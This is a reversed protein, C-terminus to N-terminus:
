CAECLFTATYINQPLISLPVNVQKNAEWILWLQLQMCGYLCWSVVGPFNCWRKMDASWLALVKSRLGIAKRPTLISSYTPMKNLNTSPKTASIIYPLFITPKWFFCWSVHGSILILFDLAWYQQWKTHWFVYCSFTIIEEDYCM